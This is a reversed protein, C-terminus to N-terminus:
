MRALVTLAAIGILLLGFWAAVMGGVQWKTKTRDPLHGFREHLWVSIVGRV